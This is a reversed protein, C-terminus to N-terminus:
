ETVAVFAVVPHLKECFVVTVTLGKGTIEPPVSIHKFACDCNVPVAVAALLLAQTDFLVPTAVIEGVPNTVATEIPVACIVYVLVSPQLLETVTFM